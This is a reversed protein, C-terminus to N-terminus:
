TPPRSSDIMWEPFPDATVWAPPSQASTRLFREVDFRHETLRREAKALQGERFLERYWPLLAFAEVSM